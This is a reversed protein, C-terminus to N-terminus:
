ANSVCEPFLDLASYSIIYEETGKAKERLICM